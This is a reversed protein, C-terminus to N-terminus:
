RNGIKQGLWGLARPGFRVAVMLAGLKWVWPNVLLAFMAEDGSFGDEV